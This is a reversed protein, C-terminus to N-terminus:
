EAVSAEAAQRVPRVGRPVPIGAEAEGPVRFVVEAGRRAPFGVAVGAAGVVEAVAAGVV